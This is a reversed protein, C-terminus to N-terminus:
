VRHLNIGVRHLCDNVCLASPALSESIILGQEFCNQFRAVCQPDQVLQVLEGMLLVLSSNCSRYNVVLKLVFMFVYFQLISWEFLKSVILIQKTLGM